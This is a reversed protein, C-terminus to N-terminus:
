LFVMGIGTFAAVVAWLWFFLLHADGDLRTGRGSTDLTFPGEGVGITTEVIYLAGDSQYTYTVTQVADGNDTVITTPGPIVGGCLAPESLLANPDPHFTACLSAPTNLGAYVGNSLVPAQEGASYATTQPAYGPQPTCYKAGCVVGVPAIPSPHCDTQCPQPPCNYCQTTTVYSTTVLCPVYTTVTIIQTSYYSVYTTPTSTWITYQDYGSYCPDAIM